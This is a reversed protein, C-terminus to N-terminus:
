GGSPRHADSEDDREHLDVDDEPHDQLLEDPIEIEEGMKSTVYCRMAAILPTHGEQEYNYGIHAVWGKETTKGELTINMKEIIRGAATWNTASDAWRPIHFPSTPAILVKGRVVQLRKRYEFGLLCKEVAWDLAPGKLTATKVKM